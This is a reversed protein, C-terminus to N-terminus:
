RDVRRAHGMRGGRRERYHQVLPSPGYEAPEAPILALAPITRCAMCRDCVQPARGLISGLDVAPWFGRDECTPCSVRVEPFLALIRRKLDRRARGVCAVAEQHLGPVHEVEPIRGDWAGQVADQCAEFCVTALMRNFLDVAISTMGPRISPVETVRDLSVGKPWHLYVMYQDINVAAVALFRCEVKGPRTPAVGFQGIAHIVGDDQIYLRQQPETRKLWEILALVHLGDAYERPAGAFLPLLQPLALGQDELWDAAVLAAAPDADIPALWLNVASLLDLM